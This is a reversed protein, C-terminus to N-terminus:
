KQNLMSFIQQFFASTRRLFCHLTFNSMFAFVFSNDWGIEDFFDSYGIAIKSKVDEFFQRERFRAAASMRYKLVLFTARRAMEYYEQEKNAFFNEVITTATISQQWLVTHHDSKSSFLSVYSNENTRDYYYFFNDIKAFIKAYYFLMATQQYDEM